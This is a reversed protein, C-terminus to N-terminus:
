LRTLLTSDEELQQSAQLPLEGRSPSPLLQPGGNLGSEELESDDLLHFAKTEVSEALLQPKCYISNCCFHIWENFDFVNLVLM